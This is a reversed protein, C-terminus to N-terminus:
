DLFPVGETLSSRAPLDDASFGGGLAQVLAVSAVLRQEQVTLATEQNTLLATQQTIVNTYAQTGARYTNLAIQVSRQASQVATANAKAQQELIRLASLEDEVQQFATLVTQRYSAVSADYAARAFAVEAGRLGGEFLVQTAQAGLSWVRNATQVLSGLPNGSYGYLASLSIDPYYAAVQVGILANQQQM